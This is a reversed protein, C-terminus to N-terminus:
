FSRELLLPDNIISTVVLVISLAILALFAYKLTNFALDVLNLKNLNLTKM